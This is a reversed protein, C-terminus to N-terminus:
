IMCLTLYIGDAKTTGFLVALSIKEFLDNEVVDSEKGKWILRAIIRISQKFRTIIARKQMLTNQNAQIMNQLTQLTTWEDIFTLMEKLMNLEHGEIKKKEYRGEVIEKIYNKAQNITYQEAKDWEDKRDVPVESKKNFEKMIPPLSLEIGFMEILINLVNKCMIYYNNAQINYTELSTEAIEELLKNFENDSLSRVEAIIKNLLSYMKENIGNDSSFIKQEQVQELTLNEKMIKKISYLISLVIKTHQIHQMEKSNGSFVRTKIDSLIQYEKQSAKFRAEANDYRKLPIDLSNDAEVVARGSREAKRVENEAKRLDSKALDLEKRLSNMAEKKKAVVTQMKHYIEDQVKKPIGDKYIDTVFINHIIGFIKVINKKLEPIELDPDDVSFSGRDSIKAFVDDMQVTTLTQDNKFAEKNAEAIEKVKDYLPGLELVQDEMEINKIDEM